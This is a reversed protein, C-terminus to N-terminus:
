RTRTTRTDIILNLRLLRCSRNLRDLKSLEMIIQNCSTGL